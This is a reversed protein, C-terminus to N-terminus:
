DQEGFWGAIDWHLNYKLVWCHRHDLDWKHWYSFKCHSWPSNSPSQHQSIASSLLSVWDETQWHAGREGKGCNLLQQRFYQDIGDLGLAIEEGTRCTHKHFSGLTLTQFTWTAWLNDAQIIAQLSWQWLCKVLWFSLLAEEQLASSNHLIGCRRPNQGMGYCPCLASCGGAAVSPSNESIRGGRIDEQCSWSRAPSSKIRCGKSTESVPPKQMFLGLSANKKAKNKPNIRCIISLTWKPSKDQVCIAVTDRMVKKLSLQTPLWIECYLTQMHSAM